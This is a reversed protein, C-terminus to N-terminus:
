VDRSEGLMLRTFVAGALPGYGRKCQEWTESFDEYQGGKPAAEDGEARTRKRPRKPHDTM